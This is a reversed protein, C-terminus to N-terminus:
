RVSDGAGVPGMDGTGGTGSGGTRGAPVSVRGRERGAAAPRRGRGALRCGLCGPHGERASLDRVRWDWQERPRPGSPKGWGALHLAWTVLLGVVAIGLGGALLTRSVTCVGLGLVATGVSAIGVGTWGAVTHGHDYPHASM